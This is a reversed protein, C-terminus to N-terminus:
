KVHAELSTKKTLMVNGTKEFKKDREIIRKKTPPDRHHIWRVVRQMSVISKFKNLRLMCLLKGQSIEMESLSGITYMLRICQFAFICLFVNSQLQCLSTSNVKIEASKGGETHVTPSFIYGGLDGSHSEPNETNHM